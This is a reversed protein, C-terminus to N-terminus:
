SLLDMRGFVDDDEEEEERADEIASESEEDDSQGDEELIVGRSHFDNQSFSSSSLPSPSLSLAKFPKSPSGGM